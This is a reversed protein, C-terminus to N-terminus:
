QVPTNLHGAGFSFPLLFSADEVMITMGDPSCMYVAIPADQWEQVEIISQRCIGCPSLPNSNNGNPNYTVAIATVKHSKDSMDLSALVSREACIGVPSAANEHNSGTLISNDQLLLAAGVKFKSYPAYAKAAAQEAAKILEQVGAPLESKLAKQFPFQFQEM